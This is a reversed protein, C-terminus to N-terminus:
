QVDDYCVPILLRLWEAMYTLTKVITAGIIIIIRVRSRVSYARRGIIGSPWQAIVIIDVSITKGCTAM